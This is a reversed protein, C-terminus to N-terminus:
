KKNKFHKGHTHTKICPSAAMVAGNAIIAVDRAKQKCHTLPFV